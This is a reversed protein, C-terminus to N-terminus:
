SFVRQRGDRRHHEARRPRPCRFPSRGDGGSLAIGGIALLIGLTCMCHFMFAEATRPPDILAMKGGAAVFEWLIFAFQLICIASQFDVEIRSVRRGFNQLRFDANQM